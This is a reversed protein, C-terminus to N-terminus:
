EKIAKRDSETLAQRFKEFGNQFQSKLDGPMVAVIARAGTLVYPALTSNQVAAQKISFAVMAMLIVSCIVVGRVLGFLAGLFRDFWQLGAKQVLKRALMSVLIGIILTGVFLALFAMGRAAEPSRALDEFWHAAGHYGLVAVVLGAVVAAISILERIFGQWVAAAVSVVVITAQAWDLWNWEM